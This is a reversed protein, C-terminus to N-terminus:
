EKTVVYHASRCHYCTAKDEAADIAAQLIEALPTDWEGRSFENVLVVEIKGQKEDGEGETFTRIIRYVRHTFDRRHHWTKVVYYGPHVPILAHDGCSLHGSQRIYCATPKEGNPKAIITADGTNTAGGGCEWVAVFGRKTTTVVMIESNNSMNKEM